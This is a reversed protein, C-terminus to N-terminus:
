RLCSDSCARRFRSRAWDDFGLCYGMCFAPTGVLVATAVFVMVTKM